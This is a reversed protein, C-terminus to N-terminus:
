FGPYHAAAGIHNKKNQQEMREIATINIINNQGTQQGRWVYHSWPM